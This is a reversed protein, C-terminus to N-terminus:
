SIRSVGDLSLGTRYNTPRSTTRIQQALDPRTPVKIRRAQPRLGVPIHPKTFGDISRTTPKPRKYHNDTGVSSVPKAVPKAVSMAASTRKTILAPKDPTLTKPHNMSATKLSLKDARKQRRKEKYISWMVAGVGLQYIVIIPLAIITQNLPDPTPTIIAAAIFALVVIWRESKLLGSPTLPKIWHIILLILPLQFILGIGLTYAVIFNLYSDATLSAEVYDGAFAYLFNLAGPIAFIYGFTIGAMLLVLSSFFIFLSNKQSKKSLIPKIFGYLQQIIIPASVALGTYVSVLLIFSFGGAPNLYILQQGNLPSLLLHIIEDRFVYAMSATVVLFVASITLRIQLERMHGMVPMIKEPSSDSKRSM